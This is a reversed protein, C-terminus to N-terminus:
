ERELIGSNVVPVQHQKFFKSQETNLVCMPLTLKQKLESGIEGTGEVLDIFEHDHWLEALYDFDLVLKHDWTTLMTKYTGLRAGYIAWDGNEIDKGVNHWITLNQLNRHIARNKFSEVTHRQGKELSMKVGERFGATFAQQPSACPYTTSYCDKMSMYMDNRWDLCFDVTTTDNGEAAEHTKMNMVYDRTWSSLGGNGYCVGNVQNVSKWRFQARQFHPPKQEFGMDLDFFEPRPLTDADIVFFRETTSAEACAKHAADSGKVGSIHVIWSYMKRIQNLHSFIQTTPEKYSLYFVDCDSVNM